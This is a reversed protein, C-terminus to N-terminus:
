SVRKGNFIDLAINDDGIHVNPGTAKYKRMQDETVEMIYGVGIDAMARRIEINNKLLEELADFDGNVPVIDMARGLPHRSPDGSYRPQRVGSTVTVPVGYKAFLQTLPQIQEFTLTDKRSSIIDSAREVAEYIEETNTAAPTEEIITEEDDFDLSLPRSLIDNNKEKEEEEEPDDLTPAKSYYINDSTFDFSVPIFYSNKNDIFKTDM